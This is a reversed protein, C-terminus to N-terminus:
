VDEAPTNLGHEDLQAPDKSRIALAAISDVLDIPLRTMQLLLANGGHGALAELREVCMGAPLSAAWRVLGQITCKARVLDRLRMQLSPPLPCSGEALALLCRGQVPSGEISWTFKCRQALLWAVVELQDNEAAMMCFRGLPLEASLSEETINHQLRWRTLLWQLTGLQGYMAARRSRRYLTGWSWNQSGRQGEPWLQQLLATEGLTVVRQPNKEAHAPDWPCPPDLSRAWAHMAVDHKKVAARCVSGDWPCPPQLRRLMKLVALNEGRAGLNGHAVAACLKASFLGPAQNRLAQVSEISMYPLARALSRVDWLVPPNLSRLWTIVEVHGAEAAASLSMSDWSSHPVTDRLHCLMPMHGGRAAGACVRSQQHQDQPVNKQLWTM